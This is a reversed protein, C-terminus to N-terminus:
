VEMQEPMGLHGDDCETLAPSLFKAERSAPAAAPIENIPNECMYTGFSFRYVEYGQFHLGDVGRPIVARLSVGVHITQGEIPVAIATHVPFVDVLADQWLQDVFSM